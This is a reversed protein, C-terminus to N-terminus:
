VGLLRLPPQLSFSIVLSNQRVKTLKYQEEPSLVINRFLLADHQEVRLYTPHYPFVPLYCVKYLLQEIQEFEEDTLRGPHVGRVERGFDKFKSPDASPPLPLPLTEIAMIGECIAINQNCSSIPSPCEHAGVTPEGIVGLAPKGAPFHNWHPM